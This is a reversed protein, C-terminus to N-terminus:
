EKEGENRDERPVGYIANPENVINAWRQNGFDYHWWEGSYNTFGASTMAFFLSRRNTTYPEESYMEFWNTVSKPSIEDAMTGMPLPAGTQADCFYVDVAGGTRHPPPATPSTNPAAVFAHVRRMQEEASLSPFEAVIQAAFTKYLHRQVTLPRFGDFVVLSVGDPLSRAAARLRVLVGARVSITTPAGAIGLEAYLPKAIIREGVVPVLLEGNDAIPLRTWPESPERLPPIPPYDSM